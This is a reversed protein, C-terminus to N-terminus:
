SSVGSTLLELPMWGLWWGSMLALVSTIYALVWALHWRRSIPTFADAPLPRLGFSLRDALLAMLIAVLGDVAWHQRVAVTAYWTLIATFALLWGVLRDHRLVVLAAFTALAVHMSPLCNTPPDVFRTLAVGYTWVDVVQVPPRSVAVPYSIWVPVALAYLSFYGVVTRDLVRRDSVTCAPATAQLFVMAYILVWPPDFPVLRDLLTPVAHLEGSSTSQGVTAYIAAVVVYALLLTVLRRRRTLESRPGSAQQNM